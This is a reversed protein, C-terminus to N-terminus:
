QEVLRDGALVLQVVDVLGVVVHEGAAVDATHDDVVV